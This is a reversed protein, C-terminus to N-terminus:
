WSAREHVEDLILLDFFGKPLFRKIFEAKAFRRFKKRDAAWMPTNCHVCVPVAESVDENPLGCDPCCEVGNRLVVQRKRQYHLKAREKGLVWIETGKPKTRHIKHAILSALSADNLNICLCNPITNQAERIWKKVLHGPCQILIRKRPKPNLYATALGCFTKGTGMEGVLTAARFDEKYLFRSIPLIGRQIQSEFAPRILNELKLRAKEDWEDETKPNYVPDMKEIVKSKLIDGWTNLFDALKITQESSDKELETTTTM